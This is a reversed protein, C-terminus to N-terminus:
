SRKHKGDRVRAPLERISWILGMAQMGRLLYYTMDIEWWYFGQRTSAAYHHHNNHWGEGLTILALFFNNKSDDGTTYRQSGYVHSLSNITCTGHLLAVTSVFFGWILMQPGNTGLGPAYTELWKGLGFLGIGCIAPILTAFRDLVRLEPFIAFDQISKLRPPFAKRSSIWGLHAWLFGGQRVSHADEPKDSYVHHHRHHGAWWLPGRQASSAGLLAFLFQCARSTKFTRHSFYRHYWGTIAFMRIFYLGIAVGVATWSWGVLFVGLCLVHVLILPIARVWDVAASGEDTRMQEIGAWLDFWRLIPLWTRERNSREDNKPLEGGIAGILPQLDSTM